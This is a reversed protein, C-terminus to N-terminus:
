SQLRRLEAEAAICGFAPWPGQAVVRQLLELGRQRQGQQLWWNAVGYGVTAFDNGSTAAALLEGAQRQGRYLLCLGLYARNDVVDSSEQLGSLLTMAEAERGARMRVMWLWHTAAVRREPHRCYEALCRAYSQEAADFAGALYQALGLHYWVNFGLTSTPEGRPGPQGDPEVEDPQGAIRAAARQLDAIARDFERLTIWRHGRHRLLRPSDPHRALADTYVAIAARFRGLYGLRRGWWIQAAEDDPHARAQAEAQQLELERQAQVAPPLAPARLSQGLLSRTEVGEPLPAPTQACAALVLLLLASRGRRVPM